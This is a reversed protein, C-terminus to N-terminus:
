YDSLVLHNKVLRIGCWGKSNGKKETAYGWQKMLRGLRNGSLYIASTELERLLESCKLFHQPDDGADEFLGKIKTEEDEEDFCEETEKRVCEPMVPRQPGYAECVMQAFARIVEPRQLFVDKIDPDAKKQFPRATKEDYESPAVYSYATRVAVCRVKVDSQFGNIKPTDNMNCFGTQQNIFCKAERDYNLRGSISEGGNSFVKIAQANWEQGKARSTENLFAIRKDRGQVLHQNSLASNGDSKKACFDQANLTNFQSAFVLRFVETITGKGSNPEGIIFFLRKDKIEGAMARAFSQLMYKSVEESGFVGTFLKDWVEDLVGQDQPVYDIGGKMLFYVDRNYERLAKKDCDYYGNRFAIKRYTTHVVKNRFEPDDNVISEIQKVWKNQEETKGRRDAPLRPCDNMYVRLQRLGTLYIGHDPNFWFVEGESRTFAHGKEEMSAMFHRAIDTDSESQLEEEGDGDGTAGWLCEENFDELSKKELKIDYGTILKVAQEAKRLVEDQVDLSEVLFGDHIITGTMYENQNFTQIAVTIIQREIDQALLSMGTGLPNRNDKMYTKFEDLSLLTTSNQRFEKHFLRLFEPPMWDIYLSEKDRTEISLTDPRGGYMVRLFQTKAEDRRLSSSKRTHESKVKRNKSTDELLATVTDDIIGVVNELHEERNAIYEDLLPCELNHKKFLQSLICPHANVMDIDTYRDHTLAKRVDRKLGQVSSAGRKPYLRGRREQPNLTFDVKHAYGDHEKLRKRLRQLQTLQGPDLRKAKIIRDLNQTNIIERCSYTNMQLNGERSNKLGRKERFRSVM